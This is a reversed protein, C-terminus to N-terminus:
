RGPFNPKRKEMFADFGEQRDETSLHLASAGKELMIGTYLDVQMGRNVLAKIAKSAMPSHDAIKRAMEMTAEELEDAPVAKNILGLAEAEKATINDGTLLLEMAKRIGILRPLRQSGGGGPLLGFNAHQDGIRAKESAIVIDCSELLEIGGALTIGNVSAIIPKGLSDMMAFTDYFLQGFAAMEQPKGNLSVAYKLDAGACFARGSGTIVIVRVEPDAECDKFAAQLQLHTDKDIANLDDPRNLTIKAIRDKKEVIIRDYDM